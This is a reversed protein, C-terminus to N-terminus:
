QSQLDPWSSGLAKLIFALEYDTLTRKGAEIRVLVSRDIDWGKRQLKAAFNAQTMGATERLTRLRPGVLNMRGHKPSPCKRQNM